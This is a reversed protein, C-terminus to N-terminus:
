LAVQWFAINERKWTYTVFIRKGDAIIAPYSYEGEQDELVFEDDWTHGNDYSARLVLPTRPGWNAGVPNFALILVGNDMRVVDIGSNNNPLPTPYAKSWTHGSDSSDSRYMYGESSRLLMHVMGPQSEWLTPQIVGRGLFSQESVPIDSGTVAEISSYDLEQIWIDVSRIWTAGQDTSIDVFAKWIGDETSAPALWTGDSLVIPKNRVPGRGGRDGKVLEVPLSWTYGNDKSVIVQTSWEKLLQGVKYFLVLEGHDKWFFVPNWHPIGDAAALQIPFTWTGKHRRSYWIASDGAGEKSGAFWATLMDGDPLIALSSAHCSEFPAQATMVLEKVAQTFMM